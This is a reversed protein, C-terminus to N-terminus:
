ISRLDIAQYNFTRTRIAEGVHSRKNISTRYNYYLSIIILCVYSLRDHKKLNIDTVLSTVDTIYVKLAVLLAEFSIQPSYVFM